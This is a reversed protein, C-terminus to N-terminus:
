LIYMNDMRKLYWDIVTFIDDFFSDMFMLEDCITIFINPTEKKCLAYQVYCYREMSTAGPFDRVINELCYYYSQKTFEDYIKKYMGNKLAQSLKRM